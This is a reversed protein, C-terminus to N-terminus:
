FGDLDLYEDDDTNSDDPTNNDPLLIPADESNDTEEDEEIVFADEDDTTTNDDDIIFADDDTPTTNDDEIIFADDDTPTEEETVTIAPEEEVPKEPEVPEAPEIVNPEEVPKEPEVPEAPEIVNPEEVPKEPAITNPEIPEITNPEEVTKDPLIDLEMLTNDDIVGGNFLDDGKEDDGEEKKEPEPETEYVVISPETLLQVTKIKLPIFHEEYFEDYDQYSYQTGLLELNEKSIIITRAKPLLSYVPEYNFLLRAYQLAEDYSRFGSINMRTLGAVDAVEMDFNRALFNTFNYRAMEFLLKNEDVSDPEYAIIFCFDVDREAKFVRAAISDSDNLVVSRRSWVDDMDFKGGHLPRGEKVGNIIMGAMPSVDSKPYNKVVENMNELCGKSDGDNLM